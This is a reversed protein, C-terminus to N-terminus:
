SASELQVLRIRQWGARECSRASSAGSPKTAVLPNGVSAGWVAEPLTLRKSCEGPSMASIDVCTMEWVPLTAAQQASARPVVFQSSVGGVACGVLFVAAAGISRVNM